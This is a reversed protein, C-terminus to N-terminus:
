HEWAMSQIDRNELPFFKHPNLLCQPDFITKIRIQLALEGPTFQSTM